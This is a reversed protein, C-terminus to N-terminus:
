LIQHDLITPKDVTFPRHSSHKLLVLVGLNIGISTCIIALEVRESLTVIFRDEQVEVDHGLLKVFVRDLIQRIWRRIIHPVPLYTNLLSFVSLPSILVIHLSM